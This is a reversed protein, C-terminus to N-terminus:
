LVVVVTVPVIETGFLDTVLQLEDRFIGEPLGARNVSLTFTTSQGPALTVPPLAAPAVGDLTLAGAPLNLATYNWSFTFADLRQNRVTLVLNSRDPTLEAEDPATLAGPQDSDDPNPDDFDSLFDEDRDWATASEPDIVHQQLTVVDSAPQALGPATTVLLTETPYTLSGPYLFYRTESPRTPTAPSFYLDNDMRMEVEFAPEEPRGQFLAVYPALNAVRLRLLNGFKSFPLPTGQETLALFRGDGESILRWAATSETGSLLGNPAISATLTAQDLAAQAPAVLAAALDDPTRLFFRFRFQSIRTPVYDAYVYVDAFAADGPLAANPDEQVGRTHLSVQGAIDVGPSFVADRQFSGSISQGAPDTYTATILYTINAQQPTNYTLILQNNLENWLIGPEDVLSTTIVPADLPDAGTAVRVTAQGDGVNSTVALTAAGTANAGLLATNLQVRVTVGAGPALTGGNPVFGTIWPTAAADAISWTLTADGRNVVRFFAADSAALTASTLALGRETALVKTLSAIDKSNYFHGGSDNALVILDALNSPSGASYTLPFLRVLNDQALQGLEGAALSSSNDRGDTIFLVANVDADDFPLTDETNQAALLEVAQGVADRIDSQLSETVPVTFGALAAKLADRDSTIPHIIRNPQQRRSHYMIGVNFTPPLDDLFQQAATKVQEIAEGPALPNEPDTTGALRMSNTYDLMLILNGHYYVDGEGFGSKPQSITIGTENPDLVEDNEEVRIAIRELQERTQVPIVKGLSDRLTFVYRMMSPPRTRNSAGEITLPQREVRVRITAVDVVDLSNTYDQDYARVTITRFEVDEKLNARDVTVVIPAGDILLNPFDPHFFDGDPGNTDGRLPNVDIILPAEADQDEHEIQFYLKSGRPGVNAIYFIGQVEERGLDLLDIPTIEPRTADPQPPESIAIEPLLLVEINIPIIQFSDGSRLTLQYVGSGVVVKAADIVVVDVLSEGGAATSGSAQSVNISPTTDPATTDTVDLSWARNVTSSNEIHLTTATQIRPPDGANVPTNDVYLTIPSPRASLGELTSGFSFQVVGSGGDSTVLLAFNERGATFEVTTATSSRPGTVGPNPRVTIGDSPLLARASAPNSPDPLFLVDWNLNDPGSNLVTFGASTAAPGVSVASPNVTLVPAVTMSVPVVQSGGNSSVRIGTNNYLGASQGARSATLLIRSTTNGTSGAAPTVGLWPVDGVTWPADENARQVEQITWSLTGGGTNRLAFDRENANEGFAIALTSVQLVPPKPCGTLLLAVGVAALAMLRPRSHAM